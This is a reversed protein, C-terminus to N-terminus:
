GNKSLQKEIVKVLEETMELLDLVEKATADPKSKILEKIGKRIGEFMDIPSVKDM